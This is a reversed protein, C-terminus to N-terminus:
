RAKQNGHVYLIVSGHKLMPWLKDRIHWSVDSSMLCWSMMKLWSFQTKMYHKHLFCHVVSKVSLYSSICVDESVQKRWFPEGERVAVASFQFSLDSYERFIGFWTVLMCVENSSVCLFWKRYVTVLMVFFWTRLYNTPWVDSKTGPPSQHM